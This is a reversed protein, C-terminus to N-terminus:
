YHNFCYYQSFLYMKTFITQKSASCTKGNLFIFFLSPLRKSKAHSIQRSAGLLRPSYIELISANVSDLPWNSVLYLAKFNALLSPAPMYHEMAALSWVRFTFFEWKFISFSSSFLFFFLKRVSCKSLFGSNNGWFFEVVLAMFAYIIVCESLTM